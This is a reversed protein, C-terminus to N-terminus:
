ARTRCCHVFNLSIIILLSVEKERVHAFTVFSPFNWINLALRVFYRFDRRGQLQFNLVFSFIIHFPSTSISLLKKLEKKEREEKTKARIIKTRTGRMEECIFKMEMAELIELECNKVTFSSLFFFKIVWYKRSLQSATV